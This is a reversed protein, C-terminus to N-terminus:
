PLIESVAFLAAPLCLPAASEHPAYETVQTYGDTGPIGHILLRRGAVDIVWYEPIGARAYLRAKTTLDSGLTSDAVEAVVRVDAPFLYRRTGYASMPEATVQVDPEPLSDDGIQLSVPLVVFERGFLRALLFLLATQISAHPLKIPMKAIIDGEILEHSGDPLLGMTHLNEYQTVTWRIRNPVPLPLTHTPPEIVQPM